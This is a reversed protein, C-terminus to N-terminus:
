YRVSDDTERFGVSGTHRFTEHPGGPPLVSNSTHSGPRFTRPRGLLGDGSPLVFRAFAALGELGRIAAMAQARV